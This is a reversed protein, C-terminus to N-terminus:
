SNTEPKKVETFDVLYQQGVEFLHFLNPNTVVLNFDATPSFKSYTNNEDRGSEDYGDEKCVARFKINENKTIGEIEFPEVQSVVLKARMTREQNEQMLHTQIAEHRKTHADEIRAQLEDQTIPSWDLFQKNKERWDHIEEVTLLRGAVKIEEAFKEALQPDIIVKYNEGITQREIEAAFMEEESMWVPYCGSEATVWKVNLEERVEAGGRWATQFFRGNNFEIGIVEGEKPARYAPNMEEFNAALVEPGAKVWKGNVMNYRSAPVTGKITQFTWGMYSPVPSKGEM